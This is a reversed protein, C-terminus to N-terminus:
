HVILITAFELVLASHKIRSGFEANLVLTRYTIPTFYTAAIPAISLQAQHPCASSLQAPLFYNNTLM